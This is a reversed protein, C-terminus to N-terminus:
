RALKSSADILAQTLADADEITNMRSISIRIAGDVVENPLGMATLVHSRRGKKCASGKSIYIERSELFSMLVESKLGPISLSLIHDAGGSVFVAQPLRQRLTDVIRARLAAIHSSHEQFGLRGAESAAGFACIAPIAETGSRLGQEHGGGFILPPIKVGQRIWLAGAGKPAHIKHGSISILDAGLSAPTFALKLFGQVADTHFLANPSVRHVLRAAESVPQIAGTENNVLMISVLATDPRLASKLDVLSIRGTTDVPLFSVEFGLSELHKVSNLVAEHEIATTIVHRCKGRGPFSGSIVAWNDAETGGSTFYVEKPKAGLASAVQDRAKNLRKEAQIGMYHSSSPNGYDEEMASLAAEVAERCPKTTAANDFYHM